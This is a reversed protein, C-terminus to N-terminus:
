IFGGRIFESTNVCSQYLSKLNIVHTQDKKPDIPAEVVVRLKADLEDQILSFQTISSKDDPISQKQFLFVCTIFNTHRCNIFIIFILFTFFLDCFANLEAWNLLNKATMLRVGIKGITTYICRNIAPVFIGNHIANMFAMIASLSLRIYKVIFVSSSQWCNSM